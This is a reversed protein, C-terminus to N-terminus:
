DGELQSAKIRPDLLGYLIDILFNALLVGTAILLTCGSILPYDLQRIARFLWAGIGPYNFVIETILAGSVMMGIALALGTIQPLMANRFVYKVIRSERIGMLKAYLVYDANLEYIAMSRMGIAQVGVSMLVVSIFPLTHHRIVSGFFQFSMAPVLDYAYGGGIPFWGLFLSFFYLLIISFAFYPVSSLFLATPFVMRDFVGKKYAAVAGLVNGLIWGVIIAPLQLAITWPIASALISSVSRPYYGFSSGLDGKALNKLYLLFQGPLSLSLGFEENFTEYLRKMSDTDTMGSSLSNVIVSVPNGKILRPLFFNLSLAIFFTLLYWLSKRLIFKRFGTM